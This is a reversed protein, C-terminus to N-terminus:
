NGCEDQGSTRLYQMVSPAFTVTLIAGGWACYIASLWVRGWLVMEGATWGILFAGVFLSAVFPWRRVKSPNLSELFAFSRPNFLGITAILPCVGLIFFLSLGPILFTRVPLGQLLSLPVGMLRGSPDAILVGGGGLAGVSLFGHLVTLGFVAPPRKKPFKLRIILTGEPKTWSERNGENAM